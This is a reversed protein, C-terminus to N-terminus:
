FMLLPACHNKTSRTGKVVNTSEGPFRQQLNLLINYLFKEWQNLSSSKMQTSKLQRIKGNSKQKIKAQYFRLCSNAMRAKLLRKRNTSVVIAQVSSIDVQEKTLALSMITLIPIVDMMMIHTAAVSKWARELDDPTAKMIHAPNWLLQLLNGLATCHMWLEM